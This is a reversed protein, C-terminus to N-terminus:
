SVAACVGYRQAHLGTVCAISIAARQSALVWPQEVQRSATTYHLALLGTPSERIVPTIMPIGPHLIRPRNVWSKQKCYQM